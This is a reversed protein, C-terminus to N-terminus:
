KKKKKMPMADDCKKDRKKDMSMLTDMKKDMSKKAKKIQKDVKEDKKQFLGSLDIFADALSYLLIKQRYEFEDPPCIINAQMLNRFVVTGWKRFALKLNQENM